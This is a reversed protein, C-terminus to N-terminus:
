PATYFNVIYLNAPRAAGQDWDVQVAYMLTDCHFEFNYTTGTASRPSTFADVVSLKEPVACARIAPLASAPVETPAGCYSAKGADATLAGQTRTCALFANFEREVAPPRPQEEAFAGPSALLAAVGLLGIINGRM